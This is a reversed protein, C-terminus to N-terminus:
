AADARVALNCDLTKVGYLADLAVIVQSNDGDYYMRSRLALNTIPDSAIGIKAGLQGGLTSLPAMALAFANRHFALNQVKAVGTASIHFTIVTNEDVADKLPPAFAIDADGSSEVANATLVYRQTHGDLSFSDGKLLTAGSTISDIHMASLGAAYVATSGSGFDVAGIADAAVGSTHSPVNQNAFMDFSYLRGLSGNRLTTDQTVMAAASLASMFAVQATGGIEFNLNGDNMPVKNDFMVKWVNAIDAIVPTSTLTSYWPIDVYLANLDKDVQDAIAVAAPRIHDSIIRDSSLALDKDTLGFKVEYWKNLTINVSETPLDMQTAPAATATFYAPRRISITTGKTQPDANYGRFVRSAMGLSKELQILAEQAFFTENYNGLTNTAM